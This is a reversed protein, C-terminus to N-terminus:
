ITALPALTPLEHLAGALNSEILRLDQHQVRNKPVMTDLQRDLRKLAIVNQAVIVMWDGMRVRRVKAEPERGYDGDVAQSSSQSM